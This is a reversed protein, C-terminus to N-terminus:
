ECLVLLDVTRELPPEGSADLVPNSGKCSFSGEHDHRTLVVELTSVTRFTGDGLPEVAPQPQHTMRTTRNYWVVEAVPRAGSIVCRVQLATGAKAPMSPSEMEIELPKVHLDLEVWSRIPQELAENTATCEFRSGLDQRSLPTAFTSAVDGAGREGRSEDVTASLQLDGKYWAVKPIPKGGFTKCTLSLVDGEQLPGVTAGSELTQGQMEIVPVSPKALTILNAYSLSPCKGRVYTVDCKYQGEDALRLPFIELQATSNRLFFDARDPNALEQLPKEVDNSYLYIRKWVDSVNKTWTIFYVNGCRKVDVDCPLRVSEGVLGTVTTEQGPFIEAVSIACACYVSFGNSAVLPSFHGRPSGSPLRLVSDNKLVALSEPCRFLGAIARGM